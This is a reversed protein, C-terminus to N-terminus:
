LEPLRSALFAVLRFALFAVLRSALFAVVRSALFAACLSSGLNATWTVFGVGSAVSISSLSARESFVASCLKGPEREEESRSAGCGKSAM